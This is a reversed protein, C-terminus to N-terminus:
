AITGEDLALSRANKARERSCCPQNAVLTARLAVLTALQHDGLDAGIHRRKEGLKTRRM